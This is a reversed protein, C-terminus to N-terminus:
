IQKLNCVAAGGGGLTAHYLYYGRLSWAYKSLLFVSSLPKFLAIWWSGHQKEIFTNVFWDKVFATSPRWM